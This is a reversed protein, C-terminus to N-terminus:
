KKGIQSRSLCDSTLYIFNIKTTKRVIKTAQQSARKIQSKAGNVFETIFLFWTLPLSNPIIDTM